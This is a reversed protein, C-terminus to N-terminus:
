LYKRIKSYITDFLIGERVSGFPKSREAHHVAVLQLDDNFCPAGSSGHEALSIYQILGSAMYVGTVANPSTSIKLSEGKPHQLILLGSGDAPIASNGVSVPQIGAAIIDESVQLLICDLDASAWLVPTESLAFTTRDNPPKAFQFTLQVDALIKTPYLPGSPSGNNSLVHYNTIVLNPAILFGTASMGLNPQRILCVAPALKDLASRLWEADLLIQSKLRGLHYEVQEPTAKWDFEPGTGVPEATNDELFRKLDLGIQATFRDLNAVVLPIDDRAAVQEYLNMLEVFRQQAVGFRNPKNLHGLARSLFGKLDKSETSQPKPALKQDALARVVRRLAQHEAHLRLLAMRTDRMNNQMERQVFWTSVVDRIPSHSVHGYAIGQKTVQSGIMNPVAALEATSYEVLLCPRGLAVLDSRRKAGRARTAAEYLQCLDKGLSLLTGQKTTGSPLRVSCPVDFFEKLVDLCATTSLGHVAYDLGIECRVVGFGDNLVRRFAVDRRSGTALSRASFNPLKLAGRSSCFYLEDHWVVNGGRYREKMVGFFRVFDQTPQPTRWDPATNLLAQSHFPRLDAIPFQLVLLM